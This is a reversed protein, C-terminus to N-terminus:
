STKLSKGINKSKLLSRYFFCSFFSFSSITMPFKGVLRSEKLLTQFIDFPFKGEKGCPLIFHKKTVLSLALSATLARREYNFHSQLSQIVKLPKLDCQCVPSVSNATQIPRSSSKLENRAKRKNLCYEIPKKEFCVNQIETSLKQLVLCGISIFSHLCNQRM